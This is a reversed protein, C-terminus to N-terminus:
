DKEAEHRDGWTIKDSVVSMIFSYFGEFPESTRIGVVHSLYM